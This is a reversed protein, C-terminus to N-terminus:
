RSPSREGYRAALNSVVVGQDGLRRVILEGDGLREGPTVLDIPTTGTAADPGTLNISTPELPAHRWVPELTRDLGAPTLRDSSRLNPELSVARGLGDAVAGCASAALSAASAIFTGAVGRLRQWLPSGRRPCRARHLHPRLHNRTRHTGHRSRPPRAKITRFVESRAQCGPRGEGQRCCGGEERGAARMTESM